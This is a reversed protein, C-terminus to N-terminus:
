REHRISGCEEYGAIVELKRASPSSTDFSLRLWQDCIRRALETGIVRAGLALVQCNNSLVSREVSYHDYAVAARVGPVKNASISMGIGTGCILIARGIDGAAVAEAVRIGVVPYPQETDDPGVGYDAVDFASALYERLDEKMQYGNADAGIGIVEQGM